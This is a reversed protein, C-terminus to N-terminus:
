SAAHGRALRREREPQNRVTRSHRPGLMMVSKAARGNVTVNQDNGVQRLDPNSQRLQVLLQHTANDLSNSNAISNANSNAAGNNEPDFGSIITGYAVADNAIGSRPAITVESNADASSRGTPRIRFGFRPTISPRSSGPPCPHGCRALDASQRRKGQAQQQNQIEQATLAKM